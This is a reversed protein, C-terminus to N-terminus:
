LLRFREMVGILVAPDVPKVMHLDFGAAFSRLRDAETGCGTIAVLFPHKGSGTCQARILKAVECGNKGPLLIDLLVVDPVEKAVHQLAEEGDLAVTVRHGYYSLLEALSGVTDVCDDVVLVGLPHPGQNPTSM